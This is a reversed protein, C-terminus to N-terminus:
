NVAIYLYCHAKGDKTYQAPVTSEYDETFSRSIEGSKQASWVMEWAKKTCAAIDGTDDSIDYKKYSGKSVEAEMAEFFNMKVGLISFDYDGSEDSAYNSYRSVPSIGQLFNHESDFLIPLKGSVIDKWIEEIKEMGEPTNNIRITVENLIYAM